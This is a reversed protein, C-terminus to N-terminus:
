YDLDHIENVWQILFKQLKYKSSFDGKISNKETPESMILSDAQLAPFRPGMGPDPLDWSSPFPLGSWYEQKSFGVSLPAQCICDMPNCPTPSSQAVLAHACACVRACVCACM